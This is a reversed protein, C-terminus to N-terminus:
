RQMGHQMFVARKKKKPPQTLYNFAGSLTDVQDDHNGDPFNQLENTLPLNWEGKVIYVNGALVQASVPRARIKKAKNVRVSRVNFGALHLTLNHVDAKGAQGPDEELVVICEVGDFAAVKKITDKVTGPNGRFRVVDEIYFNGDHARRMKLGVTWDPDPNTANPETAARDWYRVVQGSNPVAEITNFDISKFYNGGTPRANWNGDLLVSQEYKSLAKLNAIYGPDRDLLIKNDHVSAHIFTFSKLLEPEELCDERKDYWLVENNKKTFYRIVGSREPIHDGNEDIYWDIFERVWSDPDPNTTARVYPRVGCTSRNRSLMYFFQIESFHTLEDFGLLCIQSGQWVFRDQDLQMHGFKITGGSPTKWKNLTSIPVFGLQQYFALSEDWLGGPNTIMPSTKRFIVATFGPVKYHRIPEIILATSKGGGAAGGYFAIDATTSLFETQPGPQAKITITETM